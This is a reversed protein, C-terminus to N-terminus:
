DLEVVLRLVGSLRPQSTTANPRWPVAFGVKLPFPSSRVDVVIEPAVAFPAPRAWDNMLEVGLQVWPGPQALAAVGARLPFYAAPGGAEATVEARLTLFRRIRV